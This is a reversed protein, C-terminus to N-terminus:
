LAVALFEQWVIYMFIRREACGTKSLITYWHHWVLWDYWGWGSFNVIIVINRLYIKRLIGPDCFRKRFGGSWAFVAGSTISTILLWSSGMPKVMSSACCESTSFRKEPNDSASCFDTISWARRTWDRSSIRCNTSDINRYYTNEGFFSHWLPATLFCVTRFLALFPESSGYRAWVQKIFFFFCTEHSM